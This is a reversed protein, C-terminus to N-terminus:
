YQGQLGDVEQQIAGTVLGLTDAGSPDLRPDHDYNASFFRSGSNYYWFLPATAYDQYFRGYSTFLKQTGPHGLQYTAGVRPQWGDLITQAVKDESSIFYQGDWRLGVNLQLRGTARWADQLYVSPNRSGV